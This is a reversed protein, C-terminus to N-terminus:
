EFIVSSHQYFHMFSKFRLFEFQSLFSTPQLKRKFCGCKICLINYIHIRCQLVKVVLTGLFSLFFHFIFHGECFCVTNFIFIHFCAAAHVNCIHGLWSLKKRNENPHARTDPEPFAKFGECSNHLAGIVCCAVLLVLCHLDSHFYTAQNM